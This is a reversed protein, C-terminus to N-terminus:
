AAAAVYAALTLRATEEWSFAAVRRYGREILANRSSHNMAVEYIVDALRSVDDPDVVLAAEGAVEPLSARNSVVVPVGFSMAELITLGFGEFYSPSAYLLAGSYLAPLDEAAVYGPLSVHQQLDAASIALELQRRTGYDNGTIVLGLDETGPRKKVLALANVLTAANKHNGVGGVDIVYPTRIGYKGCTAAIMEPTPRTNVDLRRDLALPTVVVKEPPVRLYKLIDQRSAESITIIKKCRAASWPVFLRWFALKPQGISDPYEKYLMDCITVIGPVTALIPWTYSPSHLVDLRFRRALVPLYLQEWLIRKFQPRAGTNVRVRKFNSQHLNFTDHNDRNTFAFYNNQPDNVVLTTLLNRAYFEIGGSIGPLFALLNIGINM